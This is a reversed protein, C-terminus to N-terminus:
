LSAEAEKIKDRLEAALEFNQEKVAKDLQQKMQKIKDEKSMEGASKNASRSNKGCHATNGHIRRISPLLRDRFVEYCKACGVHGSRAIDAYTSGCFECRSAGSRAPLTNSFFSGLLGSFEDELSGFINTYGMKKACESCLDYEKIEGNIVTKVHTNANNAGCKQCKM